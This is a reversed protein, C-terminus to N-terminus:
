SVRMFGTGDDIGVVRGRYFPLAFHIYASNSSLEVLRTLRVFGADQPNVLFM